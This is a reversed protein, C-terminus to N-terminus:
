VMTQVYWQMNVNYTQGIDNGDIMYGTNDIGEQIDHNMFNFLNVNGRMYYNM